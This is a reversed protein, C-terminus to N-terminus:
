RALGQERVWLAARAVLANSHPLALKLKIGERHSEVTKVSVGLAAAIEQTSRGLGLERFVQLERESLSEIERSVAGVPRPAPRHKAAVLKLAAVISEPGDRKSLFADAGASLARPQYTAEDLMSLVVIRVNPFERRLDRVLRLGDDEGLLLDVVAIDPQHTAALERAQAGSATEACVEFTPDARLVAAVGARFLPHDDVLLIRAPQSSTM